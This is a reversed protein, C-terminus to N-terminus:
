VYGVLKFTKKKDLVIDCHNFEPSTDLIIVGGFKIVNKNYAYLFNFDIIEKGM